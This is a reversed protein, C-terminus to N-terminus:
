FDPRMFFIYGVNRYHWFKFQSLLVEGDAPGTTFKPTIEPTNGFVSLDVTRINRSIAFNEIIRCFQTPSARIGLLPRPRFIARHSAVTDTFDSDDPRIGSEANRVGALDFVRATGVDFYGM